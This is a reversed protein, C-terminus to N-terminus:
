FLNVFEDISLGVRRIQVRLLGRDLEKRDPISLSVPVGPKVLVIQLARQRAIIWGGRTFARMAERGSIVPLVAPSM